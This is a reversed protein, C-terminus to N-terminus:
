DASPRGLTIREGDSRIPDLGLKRAGPSISYTPEIAAEPVAEPVPQTVQEKPQEKSQEKSEPVLVDITEKVILSPPLQKTKAFSILEARIKALRDELGEDTVKETSAAEEVKLQRDILQSVIKNSHEASVPKRIIEGTRPHLVFDGNELRDGLVDMSKEILAALKAGLKLKGGRRLEDETDKWYQSAKWQRVTIEPVNCTRAALALNGMVLYAQIVELKKSEPWHARDLKGKSKTKAKYVLM